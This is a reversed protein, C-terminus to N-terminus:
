KHFISANDQFFLSFDPRFDVKLTKFNKCKILIYPLSPKLKLSFICIGAEQSTEPDVEVRESRRNRGHAM